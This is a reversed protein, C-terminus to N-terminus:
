SFGGLLARGLVAEVQRAGFDTQLLTLPVAGALAANPSLLWRGAARASGLAIKGLATVSGLRLARESDAFGLRGTQKRRGLTTRSIGIGEVVTREPLELAEIVHRFAPVPVGAHILRDVDLYSRLGVGGLEHQGGFVDVVDELAARHVM